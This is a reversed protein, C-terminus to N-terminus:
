RSNGHRTGDTALWRALADGDVLVIGGALAERTAQPSFRSSTIIWKECTNGPYHARFWNEKRIIQGVAKTGTLCRERKVQVLIAHIRAASREWCVLDGGAETPGAHCEVEYGKEKFANSIFQEFEKGSLLDVNSLDIRPTPPSGTGVRKEKPPLEETPGSPRIQQRSPEDLTGWIERTRHTLLARKLPSITSWREGAWDEGSTRLRARSRRDDSPSNTTQGTSSTRGM